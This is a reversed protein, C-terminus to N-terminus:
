RADTYIIDVRAGSNLLLALENVDATKLCVSPSQAQPSASIIVGSALKLMRQSCLFETSRKHLTEDNIMGERAEISTAANEDAIPLSHSEIDYSAVLTDDDWVSLERMRLNVEARLGMQVVVLKQGARLASPDVIGNLLMILEVPCQTANVIRNLAEGSKVVYITAKPNRRSLYLPLQVASTIKRAERGVVGEQTVFPRLIEVAEAGKGAHALKRAQEIEPPRKPWLSYNQAYADGSMLSNFLVAVSLTLFISKM